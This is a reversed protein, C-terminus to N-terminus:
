VWIVYKINYILNSNTTLEYDGIIKRIIDKQVTWSAKNKLKFYMELYHFTDIM